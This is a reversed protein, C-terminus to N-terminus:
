GMGVYRCARSARTSWHEWHAEASESPLVGWKDRAGLQGRHVLFRPGLGMVVPELALGSGTFGAKLITGMYSICMTMGGASKLLPGLQGLVGGAFWGMSM